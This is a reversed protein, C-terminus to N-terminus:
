RLRHGATRPRDPWGRRASGPPQQDLVNRLHFLAPLDAEQVFAKLLDSIHQDNGDSVARAIAHALAEANHPM